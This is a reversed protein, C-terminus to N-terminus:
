SLTPALAPIYSLPHLHCLRHSGAWVRGDRSAERVRNLERLEQLGGPRQGHAQAEECTEWAWLGTWAQIPSECDQSVLSFAAARSMPPQTQGPSPFCQEWQAKSFPGQWGLSHM